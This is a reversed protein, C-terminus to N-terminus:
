AGVTSAAPHPVQVSGATHKKPKGLEQCSCGPTPYEDHFALLVAIPKRTQAENRRRTRASSPLPPRFKGFGKAATRYNENGVVVFRAATMHVINAARE